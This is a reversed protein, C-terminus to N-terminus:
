VAEELRTVDILRWGQQEAERKGYAKMKTLPTSQNHYFRVETQLEGQNDRYMWRICYNKLTKM